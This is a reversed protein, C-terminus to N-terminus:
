PKARKLHNGSQVYPVFREFIFHNWVGKVLAPWNEEIDGAARVAVTLVTSDPGAPTFTYTTVNTVAHGALGLPGEFRLKTGREAHTVTAHVVGDGGANFIECFCGGPKPELYMRYPKASMSHDWWGTVDGTIADYIVPPTGPLTARIEFAFAGLHPAKVQASVTLAYLALFAFLNLRISM